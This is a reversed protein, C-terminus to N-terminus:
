ELVYSCCFVPATFRTRLWIPRPGILEVGEEALQLQRGSRLVRGHLRAEGELRPLDPGRGEPLDPVRGQAGRPDERVRGRRGVPERRRLDRGEVAEVGGRGGM